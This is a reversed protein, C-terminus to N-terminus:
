GLIIVPIPKSITKISHQLTHMIEVINDHQVSGDVYIVSPADIRIGRLRESIRNYLLIRPKYIPNKMEKYCNGVDRTSQCIYMSSPNLLFNREIWHTHGFQRGFNVKITYWGGLTVGRSSIDKVLSYFEALESIIKEDLIEQNSNHNFM